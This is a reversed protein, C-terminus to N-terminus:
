GRFHFVFSGATMAHTCSSTVIRFGFAPLPVLALAILGAPAQSAHGSAPQSIMLDIAIDSLRHLRARARRMISMECVFLSNELAGPVSCVDLEDRAVCTGGPWLSLCLRDCRRLLRSRGGLLLRWTGLAGVHQIAGVLSTRLPESHRSPM